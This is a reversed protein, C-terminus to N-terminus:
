RPDPSLVPLGDTQNKYINRGSICEEPQPDKELVKICASVNRAKLLAQGVLLRFKLNHYVLEQKEILEVCRLYEKNLLYCYGLDYVAQIIPDIVISDCKKIDRSSQDLAEVGIMGAPPGAGDEVRGEGQLQSKFKGNGNVNVLNFIKDAFFIADSHCQSEICAQMTTRMHLLLSNEDIGNTQNAPNNV